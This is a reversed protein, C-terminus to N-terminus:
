IFKNVLLLFDNLSGNSYNNRFVFDFVEDDRLSFETRMEAERAQLGATRGAYVKELGRELNVPLVKGLCGGLSRFESINERVIEIAINKNGHDSIAMYAYYNGFVNAVFCLQNKGRMDAFEDSSIHKLYGDDKDRAPRTTIGIPIYFGLDRRLAELFFSKGCCSPGILGILM